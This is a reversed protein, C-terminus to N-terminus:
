KMAWSLLSNNPADQNAQQWAAYLLQAADRRTLLSSTDTADFLGAELTAHVASAAWAPIATDEAMVSRTDSLPLELLNAVIVAAEGRSISEGSLLKLGEQTPVGSVYGCKVAQAVYPSLWDPTDTEDAFGTPISELDEQDSTLSICMAIFEGRTVTEDPQFLLHGSLTEGTYINMERLWTAALLGPDGDMDAYTTKDTPKMIKIRVTAESSTNGATDTVTYTFSDKGVKNEEPTYTVTGDPDVAVTGRKPEKVINVTLTDGEPDSINLSVTGPINKYTEFQSDEATPAENKESRIRLTMETQTGVGEDSISLCSVTADGAATGAPIFQLTKLSEATLVDGACITRGGLMVAGLTDEPVATVLVGTADEPALDTPQFCYVDQCSLDADGAFVSPLLLLALLVICFMRQYLHKMTTGGIYTVSTTNALGSFINRTM